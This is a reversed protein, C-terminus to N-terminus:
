EGKTLKIIAKLEPMERAFVCTRGDLWESLKDEYEKKTIAVAQDIIDDCEIPHESYDIKTFTDADFGEKWYYKFRQNLYEKLEEITRPEM